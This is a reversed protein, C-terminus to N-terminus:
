GCPRGLLKAPWPYSGPKVTALLQRESTLTVVGPEWEHRVTFSEEGLQKLVAAATEGGELCLHPQSQSCLSLVKSTIVAIRATLEVPSDNAERPHRLVTVSHQALTNAIRKASEEVSGNTTEFVPAGAESLSEAAHRANDSQSGCVLLIKREYLDNPETQAVMQMGQNRLLAALFPAAGAPLIGENTRKAWHDLDEETATDGIVLGSDPLAAGISLSEAGVVLDTVQSSQIPFSPDRAFETKALQVDEIHY